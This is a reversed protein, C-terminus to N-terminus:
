SKNYLNTKHELINKTSSTKQTLFVRVKKSRFTGESFVGVDTLVGNDSLVGVDSNESPATKESLLTKELM